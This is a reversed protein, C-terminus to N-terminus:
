RPPVLIEYGKPTEEIVASRPARILHKVYLIDILCISCHCALLLCTYHSYQPLAIALFILISNIFIFPTLLTFIYRNKPITKKIRLNLIPIYEFRFRLKVSKRYGFLSFYHIIKHIPYLFFACIFFLWVFNDKYLAPHIKGLFLFSFSFVLIFIISCLISLRTIGYEYKINITKWCHM